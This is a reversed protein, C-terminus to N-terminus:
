NCFNIEPLGTEESINNQFYILNNDFENDKNTPNYVMFDVMDKERGIDLKAEFIDQWSVNNESDVSNKHVHDEFFDVSIGNIVAVKVNYRPTKFEHTISFEPYITKLKEIYSDRISPPVKFDLDHVNEDKTRYITGQKRLSLSGTMQLGVDKLNQALEKVDPNNELTSEYNTLRSGSPMTRKIKTYDKTLIDAAIDQAM